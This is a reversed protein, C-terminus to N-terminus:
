QDFIRRSPLAIRECRVAFNGVMPNKLKAKM